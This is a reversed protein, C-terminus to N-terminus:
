EEKPDILSVLAEVFSQAEPGNFRMGKSPWEMDVVCSIKMLDERDFAGRIDKVNLVKSNIDEM